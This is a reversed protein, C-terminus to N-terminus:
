PKTGFVGLNIPGMNAGGRYLSEDVRRVDSLGARCFLRRLSEATFVATHWSPYAPNAGYFLRGNAWLFPDGEPNLRRWGDEHAANPEGRSHALIAECILEGDPVWIELTGGPALIRVWERLTEASRHWPIHELIHSAFVVDFTDDEFPLRGAADTLLSQEGM